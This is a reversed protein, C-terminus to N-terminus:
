QTNKIYFAIVRIMYKLYMYECTPFMLGLMGGTNLLFEGKRHDM